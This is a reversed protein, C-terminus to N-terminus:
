QQPWTQGATADLATTLLAHIGGFSGNSMIVIRDGPSARNVLLEVLHELQDSQNVDRAPLGAACIADALETVSWALDPPQFIFVQDAHALAPALAAQHHGSRLSNSRPEFAVLIRGSGQERLAATTAAIATPHHAFDDIVEVGGHLGRSELRRRVGKFTNLAQSGQELPVGVHRAALLATAANAANHAGPHSWHLTTTLNEGQLTWTTGDSRRLRWDNCAATGVRIVPTWCGRQLTEEVSRQDGNAIILGSGPVCRVLHHFQTQIAGLDAFIDAHDYELNNIILTRPRFHVFKSRKDFFATDYEDAEIVFWPSNGIRASVPFNNPRGGILFGPALGAQELIWAVLSATTTKGHTGSVAIVWRDHLINNALWAPGSVYDLGRDLVAEVVPQGRSLANGIIVQDPAPDLVSVDSSDAVAIGAEELLESMPPYVNRDSGTVVHGLERALLALSGMFTGGVGLLHVHM